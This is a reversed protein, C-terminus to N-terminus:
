KARTARRPAFIRPRKFIRRPPGTTGRAVEAEALGAYADPDQPKERLVDRFVGAARAPSIPPSSSAVSIWKRVPM